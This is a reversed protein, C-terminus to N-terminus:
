LGTERRGRAKQVLSHLISKPMNVARNLQGGCLQCSSLWVAVVELEDLLNKQNEKM